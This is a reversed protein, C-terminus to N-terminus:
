SYRIPFSTVTGGSDKVGGAEDCQSSVPSKKITAPNGNTRHRQSPLTVSGTLYFRQGILPYNEAQLM